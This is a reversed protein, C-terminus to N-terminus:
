NKGLLKDLREIVGQLLEIFGDPLKVHVKVPIDTLSYGLQRGRENLVTVQGADIKVNKDEYADLLKQLRKNVDNMELRFEQHSEINIEDEHNEKVFYFAM